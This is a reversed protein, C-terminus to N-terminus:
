FINPLLSLHIKWSCLNFVKYKCKQNRTKILCVSFLFFIDPPILRFMQRFFLRVPVLTPLNVLPYLFVFCLFIVLYVFDWELEHYSINDVSFPISWIGKVLFLVKWTYYNKDNSEWLICNFFVSFINEIEMNYILWSFSLFTFHRM